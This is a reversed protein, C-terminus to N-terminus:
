FANWIFVTLYAIDLPFHMENTWIICKNRHAIAYRACLSVSLNLYFMQQLYYDM